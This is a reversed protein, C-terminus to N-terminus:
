FTLDYLTTPHPYLHRVFGDTRAREGKAFSNQFRVVIENRPTKLLRYPNPRLLAPFIGSLVKSPSFLKKLFAVAFFSCFIL